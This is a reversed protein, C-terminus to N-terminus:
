GFVARGTFGMREAFVSARVARNRLARLERRRMDEVGEWSRAAFVARNLRERWSRLRGREAVRGGNDVSVAVVYRRAAAALVVGYFSTALVDSPVAYMM